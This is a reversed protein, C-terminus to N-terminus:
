CFSRLLILITEEDDSDSASFEFGFLLPFLTDNWFGCSSLSILSTLAVCFLKACCTLEIPSCNADSILM